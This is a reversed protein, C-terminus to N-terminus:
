IRLIDATLQKGKERGVAFGAFVMSQMTDAPHLEGISALYAGDGRGWSLRSLPNPM